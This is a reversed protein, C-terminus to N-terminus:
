KTSLADFQISLPDTASFGTMTATGAMGLKVTAGAALSLAVNYFTDNSDAKAETAAAPKTKFYPHVMTLGSPGATVTIQQLYLDAGLQQAVFTLTSGTSGVGGLDITTLVCTGSVPPGAACDGPVAPTTEIAMGPGKALQEYQIWYLVDSIGSASLAPGTHAGRLILPSTKPSGLSVVSPTFAIISTRIELDKPGALYAPADPRQGAHCTDCTGTKLAPLARKIWADQAVQEKPSLGETSIGTDIDGTCGALLLVALSRRLV